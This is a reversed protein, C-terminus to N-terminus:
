VSAEANVETPVIVFPTKSNAIIKQLNFSRIDNAAVTQQQGIIVLDVRNRKVHSEIRDAIFGIESIFEVSLNDMPPLNKKLDAFKERAETELKLKLSPLDGLFGSQILRFPFLVVLHAKCGHSIRAAVELVRGSSESLDIVCLIERM